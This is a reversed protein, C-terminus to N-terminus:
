PEIPVKSWYRPDQSPLWAIFRRIAEPDRTMRYDYEVDWQDLLLNDFRFVRQSPVIRRLCKEWEAIEAHFEDSKQGNLLGSYSRPLICLTWVGSLDVDFIMSSNPLMGDWLGFENRDRLGAIYEHTAQHCPEMLANFEEGNLDIFYCIPHAM